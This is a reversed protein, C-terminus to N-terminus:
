PQVRQGGGASGGLNQDWAGESKRRGKPSVSVQVPSALLWMEGGMKKYGGAIKLEFFKKSGRRGQARSNRHLSRTKKGGELV